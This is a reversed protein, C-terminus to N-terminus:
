RVNNSRGCFAVWCETMAKGRFSEHRADRRSDRFKHLQFFTNIRPTWDRICECPITSSVGPWDLYRPIPPTLPRRKSGPSIIDDYFGPIGVAVDIDIFVSSTSHSLIMEYDLTRTCGLTWPPSKQTIHQPHNCLTTTSFKWEAHVYMITPSLMIADTANRFPCYRRM